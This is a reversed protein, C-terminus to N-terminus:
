SQTALRDPRIRYTRVRNNPDPESDWYTADVERGRILSEVRAAPFYFNAEWERDFIRAPGFVPHWVLSSTAFYGAVYAGLAASLLVVVGAIIPWDAKRRREDM